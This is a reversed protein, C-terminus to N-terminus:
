GKFAKRILGFAGIGAFLYDLLLDIFFRGKMGTLELFPYLNKICFGLSAKGADLEALASKLSMAWIFHAGVYVAIILVALCTIIGAASVVYGGMKEYGFFIGAGILLGLLAWKYGFYGVVTWIILGPICGIVAGLIPKIVNNKEMIM